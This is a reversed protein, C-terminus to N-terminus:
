LNDELLIAKLEWALKFFHFYLSLFAEFHCAKKHCPFRISMGHKKTRVKYRLKHENMQLTIEQGFLSHTLLHPSFHAM